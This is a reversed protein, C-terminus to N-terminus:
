RWARVYFKERKSSLLDAVNLGSKLENLIRVKGENTRSSRRESAITKLHDEYFLSGTLLDTLQLLDDDDASTVELTAPIHLAGLLADHLFRDSGSDSRQEVHIAAAEVKKISTRLLTEHLSQYEIESAQTNEPWKANEESDLLLGTFRLEPNALFYEIAKLAYKVKFKDTSTHRLTCRYGTQKRLKALADRHDQPDPALLSGVALAGEAAPDGSQDLYVSIPRASIGQSLGMVPATILLYGARALLTRRTFRRNGSTPVSTLEESM